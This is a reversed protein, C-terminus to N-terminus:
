NLCSPVNEIIRPLINTQFDNLVEEYFCRDDAYNIASQVYGLYVNINYFTLQIEKEKRNKQICKLMKQWNKLLDITIECDPNPIRQARNSNVSGESRVRSKGCTSCAM